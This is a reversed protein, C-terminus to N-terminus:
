IPNEKKYPLMQASQTQYKAVGMKEQELFRDIAKRFGEHEIWHLSWTEVPEFGRLIKHEGQAGPDFRQLGQEICYEIGQYFCAEFHLCEYEDLCGWYRGYLTTSDRLCLASAVPENDKEAVVLLLYNPLSKLLRLFFDRTLYGQQGRKMYTAQYFIFFDHIHQVNIQDGSLRKLVIGQEAVRKRERKINKRKRSAFTAIFEDFSHYNRNFWHFQCGTRTRLVTEEWATLESKLPFLLHWSSFQNGATQSQIDKVIAKILTNKNIAPATCLRPGSAPTFPIATLLKPYYKLGYYQYAEAWAWDFVYEGYSHIKIYLPMVAILLGSEYATLHHPQWGTNKGVSGSHELAALFDHHLFPYDEDALRDWTAADIDDISSLYQFTFNSPTQM